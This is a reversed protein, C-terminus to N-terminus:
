AVGTVQLGHRRMMDALEGYMGRREQVMVPVFVHFAPMSGRYAGQSTHRAQTGIEFLAAHRATSKVVVATGLPGAGEVVLIVHDALNGTHRHAEYGSVVRSRAVQARNLVIGGAEAKLDAPLRKLEARLEDLGQWVVRASM